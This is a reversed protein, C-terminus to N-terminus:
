GPPPSQTAAETLVFDMEGTVLEGTWAGKSAVSPHPDSWVCRLKYKGPELKRFKPAFWALDKNDPADFSLAFDKVKAVYGAPLVCHEPIAIISVNGNEAWHDNGESDKAAVSLGADSRGPNATFAIDKASPNHLWLEVQVKGGIRWGEDAAVRM